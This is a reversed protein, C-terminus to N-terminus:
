AAHVNQTHSTAVRRGRKTEQMRDNASAIVMEVPESRAEVGGWSFVISYEGLANLQFNWLQQSITSLKRQASAGRENPYILLFEDAGSQCAFDTSGLLGRMLESVAPTVQGSIGISVVLGSLPQHSKILQSLVFGDHYGAPVASPTADSSTTAEVIAALLGTDATVPAATKNLLAGWNKKAVAPQTRITLKPAGDPGGGPATMTQSGLVVTQVEEVHISKQVFRSEVLKTAQLLPSPGASELAAVQALNAAAAPKKAPLMEIRVPGKRAPVNVVPTVAATQITPAFTEAPAPAPVVQTAPGGKVNALKAQALKPNAAMQVGRQIAAVADASLARDRNRHLRQQGVAREKSGASHNPSNSNERKVAVSSNELEATGGHTASNTTSAQVPTTQVPISRANAARHTHAVTPREVLLQERRAAEENRVKLEVMMERLQENKGKLLDCLLAAIVMCTLLGASILVELQYHGM